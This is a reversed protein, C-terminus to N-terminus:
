FEPDDIPLENGNTVTLKASSSVVINGYTDQVVCRYYNGNLDISATFSYTNTLSLDGAANIWNNGDTSVQWQYSLNEENATIAFTVDQNEEANVNEPQVTIVPPLKISLAAPESTVSGGGNSVVCRYMTGNNRSSATASATASTKGSWTNWKTGGNNSYQWQYSLGEGTAEVTFTVTQGIVAIVDQPHATIEPKAVLSLTAPESTVSGGGNSVVCRYMTGNNRSSATASATASTKGSWTNWKTGGNNSYQWQYSLGEGTAEVTFTVTQGIIATVNQPHIVIIPASVGDVNLIVNEYDALSVFDNVSILLISLCSSLFLLFIRKM